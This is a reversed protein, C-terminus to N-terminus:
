TPQSTRPGAVVCLRLLGACPAATRAPPQPAFPVAECPRSRTSCIKALNSWSSWTPRVRVVRRRIEVTCSTEGEQHRVSTCVGSVAIIVELPFLCNVAIPTNIKESVMISECFFSINRFSASLFSVNSCTKYNRGSTAAQPRCPM